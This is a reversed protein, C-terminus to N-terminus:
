KVLPVETGYVYRDFWPHYDQKTLANVFQIVDETTAKLNKKAAQATLFYLLKKFTEDGVEQRLAHLVLPGKGYLLGSYCWDHEGAGLLTAAGYVSAKDACEKTDQQWEQLQEKAKAKEGAAETMFMYALYEAFSESIWTDHEGEHGVLNGFWQHAIEHAYRANQGRSLYRSLWDSAGGFPNFGESTIEVLGAPAQWFFHRFYPIEVVELESYAFPEMGSSFFDLVAMGNRLLRTGSKEKGMVYSYVKVDYGKEQKEVKKFDGIIVFPSEVPREESSELCELGDEQFRRVTKGCAVAVYPPKVKVVVHFPAHTQTTDAQPFYDFNGFVFFSDREYNRALPGAAEVVLTVEEGAALPKALRVLLENYRHSHELRAGSADCVSKVVLKDDQEDWRRYMESRGNVLGLWLVQLGDSASTIETTSKEEVSVNDASTLELNIRTQRFPHRPRAKLDQEVPQHLVPIQYYLLTGETYRKWVSLQEFPSGTADCRYVVNEDGGELSALLNGTLKNLRTIALYHDIGRRNSDQWRNLHGGLNELSGGDAAVETPLEKPLRDTLILASTFSHHYRDQDDLKAGLREKLTTVNGAFFPGRLVRITASGTGSFTFGVVEDAAVVARIQGTLTFAIHGVGLSLETVSVAEGGLQPERFSALTREGGEATALSGLVLM